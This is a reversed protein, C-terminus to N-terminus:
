MHDWFGWVKQLALCHILRILPSVMQRALAFSQIVASHIAYQQRAPPYMLATGPSDATASLASCEGEAEVSMRLVSCDLMCWKQLLSWTMTTLVHQCRLQQPFVHQWVHHLRLMTDWLCYCPEYPSSLSNHCTCAPMKFHCSRLNCQTTSHLHCALLTSYGKSNVQSPFYVSIIHGESSKLISWTIFYQIAKGNSPFSWM